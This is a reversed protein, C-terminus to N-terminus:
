QKINEPCLNHSAESYSLNRRDLLHSGLRHILFAAEPRVADDGIPHWKQIFAFDKISHTPITNVTPLWLSFILWYISFLGLLCLSTLLFIKASHFSVSGRAHALKFFIIQHYHLPSPLSNSMVSRSFQVSSFRLWTILTLMDLYPVSLCVPAQYSASLLLCYWKQEM